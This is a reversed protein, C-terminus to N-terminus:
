WIYPILRYRVKKCYESYGSLERKLTTDEYYTRIFILLGMILVPIFALVSGLALPLSISGLLMGIYGPHRVIKYPGTNVVSHNKDEQIRVMGEFFPNHLMPWVSFISSFIYLVISIYLYFFPQEETINFRKDIGAVLPTIVIALLFYVLIIIKDLQKTGVQKKGRDNLLKPSKKLLIIGIILGGIAYIGMYIWARLIAIGGASIFFVLGTVIIWLIPALFTKMGHKTLKEGM